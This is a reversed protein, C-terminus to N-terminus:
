SLSAGHCGTSGAKPSSASSISSNPTKNSIHVESRRKCPSKRCTGHNVEHVVDSSHCSKPGHSVEVSCKEARCQRAPTSRATVPRKTLRGRRGIWELGDYQGTCPVPEERETAVVGVVASLRISLGGGVDTELTWITNDTADKEDPLCRLTDIFWIYPSVPKRPM